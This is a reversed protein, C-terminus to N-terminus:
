GGALEREAGRIWEQLHPDELWQDRYRAASPSLKAGYHNFRLVVPAYFADAISFRGCLWPGLTGYRSVCESWLADIRTVDRQAAETLPVSSNFGTARMSWLERMAAFGSHMEAVISRAHARAARSEPWATGGLQENVYEVIALSDWVHTDGDILVPVRMARSYRRVEDAFQPTDLKINVETFPVGFHKLVLWPRLSWSSLNKDGIVLTLMSRQFPITLPSDHIPRSGVPISVQM